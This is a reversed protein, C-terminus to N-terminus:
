LDIIKHAEGTFHFIAGAFEKELSLNNTADICRLPVLGSGDSRCHHQAIAVANYRLMAIQTHM